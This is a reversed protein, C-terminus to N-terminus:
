NPILKLLRTRPRPLAVKQHLLEGHARHVAREFLGGDIEGLRKLTASKCAEADRAQSQFDCNFLLACRLVGM